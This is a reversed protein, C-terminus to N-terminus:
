TRCGDCEALLAHISVADAPRCVPIQRTASRLSHTSQFAQRNWQGFLGIPRVGCPTRPNFSRNNVGGPFRFRDCEALLAHISVGPVDQGGKVIQLRVGCPTRPNFGTIPYHVINSGQRVGCPTRPNFSVGCNALFRKAHDCEALLAHISVDFRNCVGAGNRTASRLSHTSQFRPVPSPVRSYEPRVGCPTRPNFSPPLLPGDPLTNDCEALLAHISVDYM